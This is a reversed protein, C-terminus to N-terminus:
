LADDARRNWEEIAKGRDDKAYYISTNTSLAVLVEWHSRPATAGCKQCEIRFCMRAYGDHTTGYAIQKLIAKSGCFPCPKLEDM